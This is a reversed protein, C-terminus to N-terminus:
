NYAKFYAPFSKKSVSNFVTFSSSIVGTSSMVRLQYIDSGVLDAPIAFTLTKDTSTDPPTGNLPALPITAIPNAFSGSPDSLVVAFTVDSAFGAITFQAQYENFLIQNPDTYHPGGACIKDFPLQQPTIKQAYLVGTSSLMLLMLFFSFVSFPFLFTSKRNM